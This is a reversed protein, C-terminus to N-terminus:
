ISEWPNPYGRFWADLSVYAIQKNEPTPEMLWHVIDVGVDLIRKEEGDSENSLSQMYDLVTSAQIHEVCNMSEMLANFFHQVTIRDDEVREISRKFTNLDM